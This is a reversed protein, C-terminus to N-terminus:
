IIKKFLATGCAKTETNTIFEDIFEFREDHKLQDVILHVGWMKIASDHLVLFGDKKLMMSYNEVDRKIFQFLHNGDIFILDYPSVGLAAEIIRKEDSRGIMEIKKVTRLIESRFKAKPHKNDDILVITEFNFYHNLIFTTGGAAVGIELYKKLATGSDVLFYILQAFEDYIQQSHCGGEFKGGFTPLDDSGNEIIFEEISQITLDSKDEKRKSKKAM